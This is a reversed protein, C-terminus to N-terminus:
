DYYCLYKQFAEYTKHGSARMIEHLPYGRLVNITVFSRRATHSTILQWKKYEKTEIVGNVKIERIITDNFGVYQMLDKLYKNYCSIDTTVPAHYGYKELIKYVTKRDISMKDIDVRSYTGTKQQLITFINRDFNSKSIRIMDSFRQGLQCSLVFHDKVMDLHRLYQPRKNISSINFHYIRSIDDASLSIQQRNYKPLYVSDFTPSINANYRSAWSLVARLQCCITKVSSLALGEKTMFTIFNCWFIDTVQHPMITCNYTEQVSKISKVLSSLRKSYNPHIKDKISGIIDIIELLTSKSLDITKYSDSSMSLYKGFDSFSSNYSLNEM